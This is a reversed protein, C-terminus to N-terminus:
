TLRLGLGYLYLRTFKNRVHLELLRDFPWNRVRQTMRYGNEAFRRLLPSLFSPELM